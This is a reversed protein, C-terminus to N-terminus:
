EYNNVIDDFVEEQKYEVWNENHNLTIDIRGKNLWLKNTFFTDHRNTEIENRTIRYRSYIGMIPHTINLIRSFEPYVERLKKYYKSRIYIICNNEKEFEISKLVYNEEVKSSETDFDFVINKGEENYTNQLLLKLNDNEFGYVRFKWLQRNTSYSEYFCGTTGDIVEEANVVWENNYKVLLQILYRKRKEFIDVRVTPYYQIKANILSFDIDLNEDIILKDIKEKVMEFSIEKTCEFDKKKPCFLWDGRDYVFDNESSCGYCINKNNNYVNYNTTFTASKEAIGSIFVVPKKLAWALWSLGSSIGIFFECFYLDNIRDEISYDGTKNICNNPITNMHGDIGFTNHKDICVVEYGLSKLYEVTQYWGNPNNWYKFQLTSQMSICVYKKNFNNKLNTPLSIKTRNEIYPIDLIKCAMEQLNFTNWKKGIEIFKSHEISIQYDPNNPRNDYPIFNINDYDKFLVNYIQPSYFNISVNNLKQFSDVAGVWAIVDGLGPSENIIHIVNDEKLSYNKTKKIIDYPM